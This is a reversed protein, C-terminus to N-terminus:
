VGALCGRIIQDGALSHDALVGDEACFKDDDDRTRQIIISRRQVDFNLKMDQSYFYDAAHLRQLSGNNGSRDKGRKTEDELKMTVHYWTIVKSKLRMPNVTPGFRFVVVVEVEIWVVDHYFLSDEVEDLPM